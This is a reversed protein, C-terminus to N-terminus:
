LRTLLSHLRQGAAKSVPRFLGRSRRGQPEAVPQLSTSRAKGSAKAQWDFAAWWGPIFIEVGRGAPVFLKDHEPSCIKPAAVTHIAEFVRLALPQAHSPCSKRRALRTCQRAMSERIGGAEAPPPHLTVRVRCSTRDLTWSIM